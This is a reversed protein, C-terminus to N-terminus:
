YIKVASETIHPVQQEIFWTVNTTMQVEDVNVEFNYYFLNENTKPLGYSYWKWLVKQANRIEFQSSSLNCSMPNSVDLTEGENFTIRLVNDNADARVIYHWNDYPRGFWVGFFCLTGVKINPLLNNVEDAFKEATVNM